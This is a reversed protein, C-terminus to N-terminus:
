AAEVCPAAQPDQLSEWIEEFIHKMAPRSWVVREVVTREKLASRSPSVHESRFLAAAWHLRRVALAERTEVLESLIEATLPLKSSNYLWLGEEILKAIACRTVRVPRKNSSKIQEVADRIKGALQADRRQWDVTRTPASRVFPQPRHEKLWGEDHKRLWLYVSYLRNQRLWSHTVTPHGKLINLWKKRNIAQRRDHKSFKQRIHKKAESTLNTVFSKTGSRPFVLDLRAAQRKITHVSTGLLTAIRTLSVSSDAWLLTLTKDWVHGFSRLFSYDNQGLNPLDLERRCYTFGCACSFAAVLSRNPDKHRAAYKQHTLHCTKITKRRFSKCVPNLCPWPGEGFPNLAARMSLSVGKNCGAFFSEVSHGLMRMLLLHRLPHHSKERLLDNVIRVPWTRLQSDDVECQLTSLIEPEYFGTLAKTLERGRCQGNYTALGRTILLDMYRAHLLEFGPELKQQRLLWAVDQAIGLLINNITQSPHSNIVQASSIEREATVYVTYGSKNRIRISSSQLSIHHKSCVGVSPIQHMRHWYREGFIKKDDEACVLCYRLHEPPLITSAGIGCLPAIVNGNAGRMEERLRKIRSLPLFPSYFNFLTHNAIIQEVTYYDNFPLNAVLYDLHATLHIGTSGRPNGYLELNVGQRSPFQVRDAYRACISYLLEDPLATPFFGPM